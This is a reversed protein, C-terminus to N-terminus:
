KIRCGGNTQWRHVVNVTYKTFLKEPSRKNQHWSHLHSCLWKSTKCLSLLLHDTQYKLIKNWNRRNWYTVFILVLIQILPWSNLKWPACNMVKNMWLWFRTMTIMAGWEWAWYVSHQGSDAHYKQHGRLIEVSTACENIHGCWRPPPTQSDIKNNKSM